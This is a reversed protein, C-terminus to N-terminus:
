IIRINDILRVKGLMVVIFGMIGSASNWTEIPQLNGDDALEFYELDFEHMNNFRDIVQQRLLKPSTLSSNNKAFKLTQYIYPAVTREEDTLRKNRSSMALGDIERVTTCPVIEVSIQEIEVLKKIIALQQFDKEGFYAKHPLTIAFLKSVVIAVGNFHGPRSAGEMVTELLGFDYKKIVEQPYMETVSPVFLIDCGTKELLEIDAVLDRPYKELDEPNNFQIPNVFISVILIDNEQKARNMLDLHGKHLAGMTPVFGITKGDGRQQNVFTTTDSIKSFTIM